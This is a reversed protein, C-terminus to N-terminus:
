GCAATTVIPEPEVWQEPTSTPTTFRKTEPYPFVDEFYGESVRKQKQIWYDADLLERHRELFVKRVRPDSLLFTAFEEPFVDKPGVSYWPEEALEYEPYPPPPIRRFNCETLYCLEDYDYFVVRGQGTVGFNKLFMDGPFINAAALEKIAEGYEDIIHRLAQDDASQIYVNLPIMRREIYLHKIIIQEGEIEMSARCEALLEQL